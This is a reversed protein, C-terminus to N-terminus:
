HEVRGTEVTLEAVKIVARDAVKKFSSSLMLMSVLLLLLALLLERRERTSIIKMM